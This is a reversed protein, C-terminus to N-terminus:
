LVEADILFLIASTSIMNIIGPDAIM